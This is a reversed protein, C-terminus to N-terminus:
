NNNYKEIKRKIYNIYYKRIDDLIANVIEISIQRQSKQTTDFLM